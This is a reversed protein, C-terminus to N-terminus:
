STPRKDAEDLLDGNVLVTVRKSTEGAAFRSRGSGAAYDAPATATGNASAYDVTISM